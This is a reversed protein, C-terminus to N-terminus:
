QSSRQSISPYIHRTPTVHTSWVYRLWECIERTELRLCCCYNLWCSVAMKKTKGPMEMTPPQHNRQMTGRVAERPLQSLWVASSVDGWSSEDQEWVSVFLWTLPVYGCEWANEKLERECVCMSLQSAREDFAQWAWHRVDWDLWAAAECMCVTAKWYCRRNVKSKHHRSTTGGNATLAHECRHSHSCM